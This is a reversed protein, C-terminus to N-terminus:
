IDDEPRDWAVIKSMNEVDKNSWRDLATLPRARPSDSSGDEEEEDEEGRKDKKKSSKGKSKGEGTKSRPEVKNHGNKASKSRGSRSKDKSKDQKEFAEKPAHAGEAEAEEDAQEPISDKTATAVKVKKPSTSKGPQSDGRTKGASKPKASKPRSTKSKESPQEEDTQSGSKSSDKKLKKAEKTADDEAVQETQEAEAAEIAAFEEPDFAYNIAGSDIDPIDDYGILILNDKSGSREGKAKKTEDTLSEMSSSLTFSEGAISRRRASSMGLYKSSPKKFSLNCVEGDSEDETDLNVRILDKKDSFIIIRPRLGLKMNRRKMKPSKGAVETSPGAITPLGAKEVISNYDPPPASPDIPPQPSKSPKQPPLSTLKPPSLPKTRPSSGQVNPVAGAPANPSLRNVGSQTTTVATSGVTAVTTVGSLPVASGPATLAGVPKGSLDLDSAFAMTDLAGDFGMGPTTGQLTPDM